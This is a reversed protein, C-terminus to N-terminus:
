RSTERNVVPWLYLMALWKGVPVDNKFCPYYERCIRTLNSMTYLNDVADCDELFLPFKHHTYSQAHKRTNTQYRWKGTRVTLVNNTWFSSKKVPSYAIRPILPIRCIWNVYCLSLSLSLSLKCIIVAFLEQIVTSLVRGNELCKYSIRKFLYWFSTMLILLWVM